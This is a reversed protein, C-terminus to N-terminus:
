RLNISVDDSILLVVIIFFCRINYIIVVKTSYLLPLRLVTLPDSLNCSVVIGIIVSLTFLINFEPYSTSTYM